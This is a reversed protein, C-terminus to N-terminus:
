KLESMVKQKYMGVDITYSVLHSANQTCPGCQCIAPLCCNTDPTSTIPLSEEYPIDITQYIEKGYRSVMVELQEGQAVFFTVKYRTFPKLKSEDIKKILM